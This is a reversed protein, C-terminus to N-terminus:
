NIVFGLSVFLFVTDRVTEEVALATPGVILTDDIYGLITHGKIRLVAFVPKLLKTFMRPGCYLGNPLVTFQFFNGQWNFELYKQHDTHIPVTYYADKLDISAVYAGPTILRLAFPLTDMKFHYYTVYDNLEKLNLIMRLGEKKPRTFITSIFEGAEHKSEMIVGKELLKNLEINIDAKEQEHLKFQVPVREQIVDDQFEIKMGSVIELIKYDSTIDNWQKGFFSLSGM